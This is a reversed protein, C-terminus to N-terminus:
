GDLLVRCPVAAFASGIVPDSHVLHVLEDRDPHVSALLAEVDSVPDHSSSVTGHLKGLAQPVIADVSARLTTTLNDAAPMGTRPLHDAGDRAKTLNDVIPTFDVTVSQGAAVAHRIYKQTVYLHVDCVHDAWEDLPATGASSVAPAPPESVPAADSSATTAPLSTTARGASASCGASAAAAITLIALIPTRM